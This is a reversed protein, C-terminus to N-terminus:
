GRSHRQFTAVLEVEASYLFQDIPQVPGLSYGGDVLTRADRAFSAPDCSAYVIRPVSSRALAEVQEAAGARPPDLIVLDIGKLEPGALPRRALDRTEVSLGPHRSRATSLAATAAADSEVARVTVSRRALALALPGLGAYLDLARRCGAAATEVAAALHHEGFSTAQLFAAPPFPVPTEGFVITPQRRIVLPEAQGRHLWSIRVLDLTEAMAPLSLREAQAPDRDATLVLDIGNDVATLTLETLPGALTRALAAALRSLLTSLVPLAIPCRDIPEVRATGRARFGLLQDRNRRLVALRLRRRSAVPATLPELVPVDALGRRSLAEAVRQRKFATYDAPPLHQLVCGGCRGFFPCIPEARPPGDLRELPVARRAASGPPGLRVRWREGPLTLPVFLPGGPHQAIGDGGSGLREIRVEAERVPSM